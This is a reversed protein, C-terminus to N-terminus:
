LRALLPIRGLVWHLAHRHGGRSFPTTIDMVAANLLKSLDKTLSYSLNNMIAYDLELQYDGLHFTKVDYNSSSVDQHRVVSHMFKAESEAWKKIFSWAQGNRYAEELEEEWPLVVMGRPGGVPLHGPPANLNFQVDSYFIWRNNQRWGLKDGFSQQNGDVSEYIRKQVSFGFHNSSYECWLEDMVLLDQYPFQEIDQLSLASEAFKSGPRFIDMLQTPLQKGCISCMLRWTEEDAKQWNKSALFSKLANFEPDRRNEVMEDRLSQIHKLAEVAISADPQLDAIRSWMDHAEQLRGDEKLEFARLRLHNVDRPLVFRDFLIFEQAYSSQSITLYPEQIPKHCEQSLSLQPVRRELFTFLKEITNQVPKDQWADLLARTFIGHQLSECEYSKRGPMCSWFIAQSLKQALQNSHQLVSAGVVSRDDEPMEARCADLFILIDPEGDQQDKCKRLQAMVYDVSIGTHEIDGPNGDTPLLYYIGNHSLGHGSFFFWIRDGRERPETKLQELQHRIRASSPIHERMKQDVKPYGEYEKRILDSQPGTMLLINGKMGVPIGIKKNFFHYLEEMDNVAYKLSADPEFEYENVGILIVLDAM